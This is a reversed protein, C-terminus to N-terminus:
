KDTSDAAAAAAPTTTTTTTTTAPGLPEGFLSSLAKFPHPAGEEGGSEDQGRGQGRKGAVLLRRLVSLSHDHASPVDLM